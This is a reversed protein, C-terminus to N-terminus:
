SQFLAAAGAIGRPLIVTFTSGRGQASELEIRGGLAHAMQRVLALGLGVGPTHKHRISELQTFPEFVRAQEEEPIGPGSDQVRFRSEEAGREVSLTVFGQQTYKIANGLLNVLILRLLRPDSEFDQGDTPADVRLDLGKSEAQPALEEAVESALAAPDFRKLELSLRGSEIRAYELLSEILDSLRASSRHIREIAGRQRDSFPAERDQALRDLQLLITALPTRLEHSVLGLFDTKVRSAQEAQERAVRMAELATELERRRVVVEGALSELDRAQSELETQLVARARKITVLNGVRAKLEEVSFPKMLYDQAGARLLRVRSEDDARATLLVIPTGDFTREARLQSVLMEGSAAPMMMDSLILDPLLERARALGEGGDLASATRVDPELSERIFRNMEPNDEVVLVLPKERADSPAVAEVRDRLTEISQRFLNAEASEGNAASADRLSAGAPAEVPLEVLFDAGGEAAQGVGISGGHLEVFDKAIALGLGTGGFRRTSGGDGQRFREFIAARLDPRVGPGSDAVEIAVRGSARRAVCRIQGGSPTFKFANSLLNLIVRQIKGSDFDATVVESAEVRFEIHRQQALSDFHSAVLRVVSAVDARAYDVRMKGAELKSLDLLDNVHRMLLRANRAVVELDRREGDPLSGSLLKETPGLVLALPTRLEHSVNAFFDTKLRELERVKEYMTGLDKYATELQIGKERAVRAGRTLAVAKPVLPPMLVATAVSAVATIAKVGGSIWYIPKWVTWVEFFHTFGCSVIFIGFAFFIWKFPIDGVRSVLYALTASIAIYSLWILGDSVVHLWVLGPKWLYCHGHPMFLDSSVMAQIWQPM